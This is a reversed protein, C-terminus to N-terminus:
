KLHKEFWDTVKEIYEAPPEHGVNYEIFEKQSIPIRDYIHPCQRIILEKLFLKRGIEM